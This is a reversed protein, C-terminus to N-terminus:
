TRLAFLAVPSKRGSLNRQGLDDYTFRDAALTRTTGSLLVQMPRAISELQAALNVTDGIATYAMRTDSGVNGVIAEGSHIGIALEIRVGHRAHWRENGTELWHMIDTAAALAKTAHDEAPDPAGWIAMACDGIFKDLMGGHRFVIGTIFTFLENLIEVVAEAPLEQAMTTFSVVDAFLVSIQQRRGGLDMDKERAVVQSVLEAPLFRGLDSRIETERREREESAELSAAAESMAHGLVGLEDDRDLEIRASFDRKSLRGAFGTLAEIPRTVRRAFFIAALVAGLMTALSVALLWRRMQHLGAYAEERAVQAVVALGRGGITAVTGLWAKGDTTEYESTHQVGGRGVVSMVGAIAPHEAMSRGIHGKGADPHAVVLGNADVVALSGPRGHFRLAQLAKVRRQLAHLPVQSYAFGTTQGSVRLPVCLPIRAVDSHADHGTPVSRATPAVVSGVFLGAEAAQERVQDPLTDPLALSRSPGTRVADVFTGSGTYIGVHDVTSSSAVLDKAAQLAVPEDSEGLLVRAVAELSDEAGVLEQDLTRAIDDVVALNLERAQLRLTDANAELVGYSVASVPLIALAVALLTIKGRFSFGPQPTAPGSSM